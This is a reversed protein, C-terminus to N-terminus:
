QSVQSRGTRDHARIRCRIPGATEDRSRSIAGAPRAPIDWGAQVNYSLRGIDPLNPQKAGGTKPQQNQDGGAGLRLRGITRGAYVPDVPCLADVPRTPRGVDVTRRLAGDFAALSLGSHAVLL